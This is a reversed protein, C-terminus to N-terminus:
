PREGSATQEFSFVAKPLQERVRALFKDRAAKLTSSLMAKCLEKPCSDTTACFTERCGGCRWVLETANERMYETLVATIEHQCSHEQDWPTGDSTQHPFKEHCLMNTETLTNASCPPFISFRSTAM